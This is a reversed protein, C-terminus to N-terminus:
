RSSSSSCIAIGISATVRLEHGGVVLPEAIASRVKSVVSLCEGPGDLATLVIAFEDGGM